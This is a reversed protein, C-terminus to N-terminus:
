YQEGARYQHQLHHNPIINNLREALSPNGAIAKATARMLKQGSKEILRYSQQIQDDNKLFNKDRTLDEQLQRTTRVQQSNVTPQKDETLNQRHKSSYKYFDSMQFPKTEEYYPQFKAVGNTQTQNLKPPEEVTTKASCSRTVQKLGNTTQRDVLPQRITPPLTMKSAVQGSTRQMLRDPIPPPPLITSLPSIEESINGSSRTIRRRIQPIPERPKLPYDAPLHGTLEGEKLCLERFENIRKTLQTELNLLSERKVQIEKLGNKISRSNRNGTPFTSSMM